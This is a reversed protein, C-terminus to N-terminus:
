AEWGGDVTYAAGTVFSADASALFACLAAVEEPRGLRKMQTREAFAQVHPLLEDDADRGGLMRPTGIPGPCVANVRIGASSLDWAAARTLGVVAHKAAVYAPYRPTGSLGNVSATNVIAGGHGEAKMQRAAHKIGLFVGRANVAMIRDFDETPYDDIRKTAGGGGANNFICDLRGFRAVSQAILQEVSAESTVDVAIHATEAAHAAAVAAATEGLPTNELDAVVVRAGEAACRHAIAGGIGGAAGTVIIVQGELSRVM